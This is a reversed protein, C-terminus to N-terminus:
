RRQAAQWNVSEEHRTLDSYLALLREITASWPYRQATVRAAKRRQVEPVTLLARVGRALGMPSGDTVAGSGVDGVLEPAAGESPVVIPTGCALSELLALGFTEAPSPFVAIDAAGVMSAITERSAIHGAFTVPLGDALAEIRSRLPGDGIMTLEADVGDACLIRLAEVALDANKEGSLRSLTVLKVPGPASKGLRPRFVDLDVGLPIRSVNTAGVRAFEAAAFNSTVVIEDARRSLRSNSANALAVLPFWDPVRTRLIADIREHSFLVLPVGRRRAWPALWAVSLKDSVELVDPQEEDLLRCTQRSTLVHYTKSWFFQPSSLTVRRGAPTDETAYADGPVVLVREHGADLYGRGLEDVTTRLGGSTPTYFNALQVIKM